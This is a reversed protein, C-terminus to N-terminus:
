MGSPLEIADVPCAFVCNGCEDCKEAVISYPNGEVIAEFPCVKQCAGCAVCAPTITCGAPGVLSGGFAFRERKMKVVKGSLDFIEGVGEHVHYAAMSEGIGGQPFLEGLAPNDRFIRDLAEGDLARVKGNIRVQVYDKTMGTVAVHGSTKLQRHFPKITCTMFYIGQDDAGMVDVIRSQPMGDKVTSFVVSKIERLMQFARNSVDM